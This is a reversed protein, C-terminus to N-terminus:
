FILNNSINLYNNILALIYYFFIFSYFKLVGEKNKISNETLFNKIMVLVVIILLPEFYKQSTYYATSTLNILLILFFLKKDKKFIFFIIFISLFSITFFILENKFIFFSIKYFFGGGLGPTFNQFNFLLLIFFLFFTIIEVLKINKFFNKLALSNKKNFLFFLIFFLVISLNTLITYSFNETFDLKAGLPTKLILYLGPLSFISCLSLIYFFKILRLTKYYEFLYFLFFVAYSQISYTSLTLFFINFFILYNKNKDKYTLFFYNSILLFIIATLHANPWIASARFYPIFVISFSVILNFYNNERYLKQLNIYILFPTFSAFILYFIRTIYINDFFFHPISLLIYHLPFHRTYKDFNEFINRTFNEVVPFTQFFDLKSGGTSLDENVFFGLFLLILPLTVAFVKKVFFINKM